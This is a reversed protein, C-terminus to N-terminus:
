GDMKGKRREVVWEDGIGDGACLGATMDPASEPAALGCGGGGGLGLSLILTLREDDKTAPASGVDVGPGRAEAAVGATAVGLSPPLFTLSLILAECGAVGASVGM